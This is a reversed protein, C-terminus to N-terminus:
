EGGKLLYNHKKSNISIFELEVAIQKQYYIGAGYICNGAAVVNGQLGPEKRLNEPVIFDADTTYYNQDAQLEHLYQRETTVGLHYATTISVLCGLGLWVYKM